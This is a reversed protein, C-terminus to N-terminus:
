TRRRRRDSDTLWTMDLLAVAGIGAAYAAIDLWSFETGLVVALARPILGPSQSLERALGTLQFAEIAVMAAMTVLGIKVPSGRRWVLSLLLYFVVADLADGLYKDILRVGTHNLRSALGAIVTVLVAILLGATRRDFRVRSPHPVREEGNGM